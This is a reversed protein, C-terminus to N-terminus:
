ARGGKLYAELAVIVMEQLSVREKVARIKAKDWLERPVRITTRVIEQEKAM